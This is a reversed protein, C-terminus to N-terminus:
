PHRQRDSDACTWVWFALQMQELAIHAFIVRERQNNISIALLLYM